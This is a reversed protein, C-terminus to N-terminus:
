VREPEPQTTQEPLAQASGRPGKLWIYGIGLQAELSQSRVVFKCVQEKLFAVGRGTFITDTMTGDRRLLQFLGDRRGLSVCYGGDGFSFPEEALGRLRRAVNDAAHAGMPMATKCCMHIPAGVSEQPSAADGIVWTSDNQRGLARLERDVRAQGRHNV